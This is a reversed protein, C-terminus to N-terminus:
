FQMYVFRAMGWQGIVLIAGLLMYHFGWRFPTPRRALWEWLSRFEDLVEVAMLFVILALSILISGSWVYSALLQPLMPLAGWLRAIVEWAQDMSEARFFIWAFVILHFTLLLSVATWLWRPVWRSMTERARGTMLYIVQYAGNLGGWVIFTLGAGHWLGSVLFVIMVNLWLRPRSVRSGGLPIYLYDRFWAM